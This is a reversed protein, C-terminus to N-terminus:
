CLKLTRRHGLGVDAGQAALGADACVGAGRCESPLPAGGTRGLYLHLLPSHEPEQLSHDPLVGRCPFPTASLCPLFLRFLAPLWLPAPGRSPVLYPLPSSSWSYFCVPLHVLWASHLMKLSTPKMKWFVM